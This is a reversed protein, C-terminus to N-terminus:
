ETGCDFWTTDTNGLIIEVPLELEYWTIDVGGSLAVIGPCFIIMGTCCFTMGDVPPRFSVQHGTWSM